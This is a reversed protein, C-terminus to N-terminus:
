LGGVEWFSKEEAPEIANLLELFGIIVAVVLTRETQGHEKTRAAV